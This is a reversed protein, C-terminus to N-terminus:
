VHADDFGLQWAQWDRRCYLGCSTVYHYLQGVSFFLCFDEHPECAM